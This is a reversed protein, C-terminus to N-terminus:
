ADALLLLRQRHRSLVADPGYPQGRLYPQLGCRPHSRHRCRAAGRRHHPFRQHRQRQHLARGAHLLEAYQLGLLQTLGRDLLHRDNLFAHIPLLEMATVGLRRLHAITAPESLGRYTGRTEAPVDGRTQTLGKVHAEYFITDEWATQPRRGDAWTHAPDVVVSKVMGRSNDRRDFSLDELRHGTRYAFHADTWAFQGGLRKSYPDILLKNANFRHGAKPEYPGDVRYGYLQGPRSM